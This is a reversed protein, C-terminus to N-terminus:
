EDEATSEELQKRLTENDENLLIMTAEMASIQGNAQALQREKVNLLRHCTLLDEPWNGLPNMESM